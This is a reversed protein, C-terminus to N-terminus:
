KKKNKEEGNPKIEVVGSDLLENLWRMANVQVQFDFKNEIEAMDYFNNFNYGCMGEYSTFHYGVRGDTCFGIWFEDEENYPKGPTHCGELHCYWEGDRAKAKNLWCKKKITDWDKVVLRNIDAPRLNYKNPVLKIESFDMYSNM